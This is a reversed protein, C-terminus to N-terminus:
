LTTEQFILRPDFMSATGAPRFAMLADIGLLFFAKCNYFCTWRCHNGVFLRALFGDFCAVFITVESGPVLLSLYSASTAESGSLFLDYYTM